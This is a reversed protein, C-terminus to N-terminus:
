RLGARCPRRVERCRRSWCAKWCRCVWRTQGRRPWRADLLRGAQSLPRIPISVLFVPRPTLRVALATTLGLKQERLPRKKHAGPQLVLLATPVGTVPKAHVKTPMAAVFTTWVTGEKPSISAVAGALGPRLTVTPGKTAWRAPAVSLVIAGRLSILGLVVLKPIALAVM